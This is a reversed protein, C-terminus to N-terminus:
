AAALVISHQKAQHSNNNTGAMIAIPSPAHLLAIPDSRGTRFAYSLFLIRVSHVPLSMHTETFISDIVEIFTNQGHIQTTCTEVYLKEIDIRINSYTYTNRVDTNIM